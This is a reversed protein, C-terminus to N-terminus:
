AARTRDAAGAALAFVQDVFDARLPYDFLVDPDIEIHFATELHAILETGSMSDLGQDTLEIDPAIAQVGTLEFFLDGVLQDITERSLPADITADSAEVRKGTESVAQPQARLYAELPAARGRDFPVQLPLIPKRVAADAGKIVIHANTGGFGFSSVGVAAQHEIATPQTVVRISASAFDIYRNPQNFQLNPPITGHNVICVSKILGAIGAASELHGINSKVSGIYCSEKRSEAVTNRIASIEIPDGIKTGTGHCEVYAIERPQIGADRCAAAIVEEQAGPHPATILQARRGNQNVASGAITAYYDQVLAKNALLVLGGGEARVYGDASDDFTKCRNDRSLFGSRRMSETFAPDLLLNVGGAIAFDIRGAEIDKAAYHVAVLSSSCATNAVWSPGRLDYQYSIRAAIISPNTGTPYYVSSRDGGYEQSWAGIYVGVRRKDLADPDIGSDKWLLEALELALIQQPDMTRAEAAPIDFYRHDFRTVASNLFGAEANGRGTELHVQDARSQLMDWFQFPTEVAAPFRCSMGSIVADHKRLRADSTQAFPTAVGFRDILQDITKYRYFDQPALTPFFPELITALNVFGLSDFGQYALSTSFDLNPHVGALAAALRDHLVRRDLKTRQFLIWPLDDEGRYLSSAYAYDSFIRCCKELVPHFGIEIIELANTGYRQKVAAMSQIFDIPRTLWLRWHDDALRTEFRRTVGSVFVGQDIENSQLRPLRTAYAEYDPHHWPHPLRMKVFDPHAQVFDDVAQTKGSLTVHRGGEVAFNFSALNVPVDTGSAHTVIGHAMAGDLHSAAEGIQYALVLVNELAYFGAEYSAALEGTSHGIVVDPRYGWRRWIDALCIQTVVTLLPSYPCRHRGIERRWLQELDLNLQTRIIAEIRPWLASREVLRFTADASHTGEGSFLFLTKKM